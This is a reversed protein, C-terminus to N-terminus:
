ELNCWVFVGALVTGLIFTVGGVANLWVLLVDYAGGVREAHIRNADVQAVARRLAKTSFFHSGLVCALSCVWALWAIMLAWLVRPPNDGVFREVFAFSIGLAGGSLAVVLRDYEAQSKQEVAILADRYQQKWDKSSSQDQSVPEDSESM